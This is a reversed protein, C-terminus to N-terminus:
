KNVEDIWFQGRQQALQSMAKHWNAKPKHYLNMYRPCPPQPDRGAIRAEADVVYPCKGDACPLVAGDFKKTIPQWLSAQAIWCARSSLINAWDNNTACLEMFVHDQLTYTGAEESTALKFYDDVFLIQRHRVVQARLAMPVIVQINHFDLTLTQGAGARAKENLFKVLKISDIAKVSLEHGLSAKLIGDITIMIALFRRRQPDYKTCNVLYQFYLLLKVLDRYNIRATWSTLSALPLYMRWEDQSVHADKKMIMKARLNDYYKKHDAEFIAPVRFLLPDDVRSTRAWIHHSRLTTFIEREFITFDEFALLYSPMENVPADVVAVDALKYDGAPDRSRAWTQLAQQMNAPELVEIHM